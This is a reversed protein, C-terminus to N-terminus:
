YGGLQRMLVRFPTNYNRPVKKVVYHGRQLAKELDEASREGSWDWYSYQDFVAVRSSDKFTKRVYASYLFEEDHMMRVDTRYIDLIEMLEVFNNWRFFMSDHNSIRDFNEKGFVDIFKPFTYGYTMKLKLEEPYLYRDATGVDYQRIFDDFGDRIFLQNSSMFLVYDCEIENKRIYDLFRQHLPIMGIGGSILSNDLVRVFDDQLHQVPLLRSNHILILSKPMYRRFNRINDELSPIDEHFTLLILIEYKKM